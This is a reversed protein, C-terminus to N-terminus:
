GSRRVTGSVLYFSGFALERVTLRSLFSALHSWPRDFGEFSTVYPVAWATQVDYAPALDSYRRFALEAESPAGAGSSRERQQIFDAAPDPRTVHPRGQTRQSM